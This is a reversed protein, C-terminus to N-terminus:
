SYLQLATGLDVPRLSDAIDNVFMNVVLAGMSTGTRAFNKEESLEKLADIASPPPLSVLTTDRGRTM